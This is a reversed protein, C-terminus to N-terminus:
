RQLRRGGAVIRDIISRVAEAADEVELIPFSLEAALARYPDPWSDFVVVPPPWPHKARLRFIEECANRVGPWEGDEILEELLLLDVLDRFRDNDEGHSPVETSAHMKQAIQYRISVCPVAAPVSLGLSDLIKGPIRDIERGAEGEAAAVELQVTGWSRGHYSLKIDLRQAGTERITEPETRIATFDGCGHRLAVDLRELMGEIAERYAADYDKTARARLGLRLEMAAGGKLVFMPDENEDRVHDLMAAVVM